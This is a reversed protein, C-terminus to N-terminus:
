SYGLFIGSGIVQQSSWVKLARVDEDPSPPLHGSGLSLVGHGGSGLNVELEQRKSDLMYGSEPMTDDQILRNEHLALLERGRQLSNELCNAVDVRLVCPVHYTYLDPAVKVGGHGGESQRGAM